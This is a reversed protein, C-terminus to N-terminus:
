DFSAILLERRLVRKVQPSSVKDESYSVNNDKFGVRKRKIRGLSTYSDLTRRKIGFADACEVITGEFRKSTKTDYFKYTRVITM